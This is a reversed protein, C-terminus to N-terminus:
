NPNESLSLEQPSFSILVNSAKRISFTHTTSESVPGHSYGM